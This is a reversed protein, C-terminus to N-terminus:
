RLNSHKCTFKPKWDILKYFWDPFKEMTLTGKSRVSIGHACLSTQPSTILTAFPLIIIHGLCYSKNGLRRTTFPWIFTIDGGYLKM